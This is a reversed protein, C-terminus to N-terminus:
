DRNGHVIEGKAVIDGNTTKVKNASINGNVTIDGNTTSVDGGTVDGNVQIDGSVTSVSECAGHVVVWIPGAVAGQSNGDIIVNGDPTITVNNGSYVKGNITITGKPKLFVDFIGM